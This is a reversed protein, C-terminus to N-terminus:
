EARCACASTTASLQKTFVVGGCNEAGGGGGGGGGALKLALLLLESGSAVGSAVGFGFGFCFCFGLLVQQVTDEACHAAGGRFKRCTACSNQNVNQVVHTVIISYCNPAFVCTYLVVVVIRLM